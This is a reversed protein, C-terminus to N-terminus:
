RRFARHNRVPAPKLEEYTRDLRKIAGIIPRASRPKLEEYTTSFPTLIGL